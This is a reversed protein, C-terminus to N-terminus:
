AMKGCFKILILGYPQKTQWHNTNAVFSVLSRDFMLLNHPLTFFTVLLRGVDRLNGVNFHIVVFRDYMPLNHHFNAAGGFVSWHGALMVWTVMGVLSRHSTPLNSKFFIKEISQLRFNGCM